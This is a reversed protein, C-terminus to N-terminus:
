TRVFFQFLKYMQVKIEKSLLSPSLINQVSRYCANGSKLRSEMEEHIPNQNTLNVSKVLKVMKFSKNGIKINHNQGARKERFM